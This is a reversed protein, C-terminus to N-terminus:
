YNIHDSTKFPKGFKAYPLYYLVKKKLKKIVPHNPEFTRLYRLYTTRKCRKSNPGDMYKQIQRKSDGFKEYMECAINFAYAGIEDPHGYYNQSRRTKALHATSEYGPIYKFNRTRYQRMHIVEHLVTDAFLECMRKWRWQTIKLFEDFTFYSFLVEIQRDKGKQDKESYYCGGIYVMGSEQASERQMRVAIPLHQKIHKSLVKHLDEVPLKRGVVHKRAKNLISYLTLRDLNSWDFSARTM